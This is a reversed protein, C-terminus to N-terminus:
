DFALGWWINRPEPLELKPSIRAVAFNRESGGGCFFVPARFRVCTISFENALLSLAQSEDGQALLLEKVFLEGDNVECAACGVNGDLDILCLAGGSVSIYRNYWELLKESFRIHCRGSLVLERLRCYSAADVRHVRGVPMQPLEDGSLFGERAMSVPELGFTASYWGYLSEQAPVLTVMPAKEMAGQMIHESVAAGLGYGRHERLTGLTYCYPAPLASGDPMILETGWLLYIASVVQGCREAVSAIGPEYVAQMFLDIFGDDDGFSVKWIEKLAAEDGKKSPRAASLEM